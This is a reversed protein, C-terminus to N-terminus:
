FTHSLLAMMVGRERGYGADRLGVSGAVHFTGLQLGLGAGLQTGAHGEDLRIRSAGAQLHLWELPRVEAGLGAHGAPRHRLGQQSSVGVDSALLIRGTRWAVGARYAPRFTARDLKERLVTPASSVPQWDPEVEDARLEFARYRLRDHDWEFTSAVNEAVVAVTWQDFEASAAVDFGWGGGSRIWYSLGDYVIPTYIVPLRIESPDANPGSAPGAAESLALGHGITFRATAGLALRGSGLPGGSVGAVPVGFSAAFSTWAGGDIESRAARIAGPDVSGVGSSGALLLEAVVADIDNVARGVTSVQFAARRFQATAWTIEAGAAGVQGNSGRIRDLWAQRTDPALDDGGWDWLDGLTIPGVGAGGRVAGMLASVDPGSALGLAAANWAVAPYGRAVATYNDAMGWAAPAPNASQAHAPAVSGAVAATLALAFTRMTM